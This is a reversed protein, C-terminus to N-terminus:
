FNDLQMEMEHQNILNKFGRKELESIIQVRDSALNKLKVQQEVKAISDLLSSFDGQKEQLQVINGAQGLTFYGSIKGTSDRVVFSSTMKEDMQVAEARSEWCYHEPRYLGTALIESFATKEPMKAEPLLDLDGSFSLLDRVISFGIREYVKKAPENEVIVELLCKEVGNKKFEPIAEAYIRDVLQQGRYEPLVGTGTNYATLQGNHVDIGNIIFGMLKEEKFAGFSLSWDVKVNNFRNKWYELDTPLTVFYNQFSEFFCEMVTDIPTAALHKIEM